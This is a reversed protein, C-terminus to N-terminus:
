KKGKGSVFPNIEGKPMATGNPKAAPVSAKKAPVNVKGDIVGASVNRGKPVSYSQTAM